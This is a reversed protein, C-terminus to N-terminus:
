SRSKVKIAEEFSMGLRLRSHVSVYNINLERCWGALTKSVGNLTYYVNKRTNNAQEIKTAWRCNEKSYGMDNDKRDITHNGSPRQGMDRYFAEFSDKWEDCMTIGRGGYLPYGRVKKNYCRNKIGAWIGYEPLKKWGPKACGCSRTNGNRLNTAPIPIIKGCGGYTPDCLCEWMVQKLENNAIRLRVTLRGFNQGTLDQFSGRM